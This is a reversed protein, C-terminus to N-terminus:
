EFDTKSIFVVFEDFMKQLSQEIIQESCRVESLNALCIEDVGIMASEPLTKM